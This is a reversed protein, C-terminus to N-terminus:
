QAIETDSTEEITTGILADSEHATLTESTEVLVDVKDRVSVLATLILSVDLELRVRLLLSALLIEIASEDLRPNAVYVWSFSFKSLVLAKSEKTFVPPDETDTDVEAARL